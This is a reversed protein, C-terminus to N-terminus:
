RTQPFTLFRIIPDRVWGSGHHFGDGQTTFVRGGQTIDQQRRRQRRATAIQQHPDFRNRDVGDIALLPGGGIRGSKLNGPHEAPVCGAHDFGDTVLGPQEGGTVLDVEGTVNGPRAAVGLVLPNILAQDRALRGREIESFRRRQRQGSECGPFQQELAHRQLEIAAAVHALVQQHDAAGAADARHRDLQCAM